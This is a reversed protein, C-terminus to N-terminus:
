ALSNWYENETTECSCWFYEWAEQSEGVHNGKRLMCSLFLTTLFSDLNDVLDEGGDQKGGEKVTGEKTLSLCQRQSPTIYPLFCLCSKPQWPSLNQLQSFKPKLSRLVWLVSPVKPLHYSSGQWASWPWRFLFPPLTCQPIWSYLSSHRNEPCVRRFRCPWLSGQAWAGPSPRAPRLCGLSRRAM